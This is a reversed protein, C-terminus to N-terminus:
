APMEISQCLTNDNGGSGKMQLGSLESVATEITKLQEWLSSHMETQERMVMALDIARGPGRLRRCGILFEELSIYGSDDLDILRFLAAPDTLDGDIYSVLEQM